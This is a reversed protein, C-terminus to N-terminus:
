DPFDMTHRRRGPSLAARVDIAPPPLKRFPHDGETLLSRRSCRDKSHGLARQEVKAAADRPEGGFARQAWLADQTPDPAFDAYIETTKSDRHGM